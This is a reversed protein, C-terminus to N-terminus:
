ITIYDEQNLEEKLITIFSNSMYYPLTNYVKVLNFLQLEKLTKNVGECM